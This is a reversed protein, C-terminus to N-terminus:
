RGAETLLSLDEPALSLRAGRVLSELQTVSTASAIPATIGPQAIIWALAVEASRASHRESVTDLAALIKM